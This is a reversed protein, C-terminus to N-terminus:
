PPNKHWLFRPVFKTFFDARGLLVADLSTTKAVTFSDCVVIGNYLIRGSCLRTELGGVQAPEWASFPFIRSPSALRPSTAM